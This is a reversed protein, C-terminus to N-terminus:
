KVCSKLTAPVQHALLNAYLLTLRWQVEQGIDHHSYGGVGGALPPGNSM